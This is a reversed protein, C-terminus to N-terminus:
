NPGIVAGPVEAAHKACAACMEKKKAGDKALMRSIGAVLEKIERGALEAHNKLQKFQKERAKDGARLAKLERKRHAWDM